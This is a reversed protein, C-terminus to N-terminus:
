RTEEFHKALGQMTSFIEDWIGRVISRCAAVDGAAAAFRTPHEAESKSRFANLEGAARQIREGVWQREVLRGTERDNRLKLKRATEVAITLRAGDLSGPAGLEAQIQERHEGIWAGLEVVYIRSNRFAPCGNRKAWKVVEIPQKLLKAAAHGSQVFVPDPKTNTTSKKTKM